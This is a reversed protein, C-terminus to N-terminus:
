GKSVTLYIRGASMQENKLDLWGSWQIGHPIPVGGGWNPLSPIYQGLIDGRRSGENGFPFLM